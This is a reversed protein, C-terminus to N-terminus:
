LPWRGLAPPRIKWRHAKDVRHPPFPAGIPSEVQRSQGIALVARNRPRLQLRNAKAIPRDIAADFGAPQMSDKATGIGNTAWVDTRSAPEAGRREGTAISADDRM